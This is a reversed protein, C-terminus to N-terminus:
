MQTFQSYLPRNKKIILDPFQSRRRMESSQPNFNSSFENIFRQGIGSGTGNNSNNSNSVQHQHPFVYQQMNQNLPPVKSNIKVLPSQAASTNNFSQQQMNLTMPTLTQDMKLDYKNEHNMLEDTKLISSSVYDNIDNLRVLVRTQHNDEMFKLLQKYAEEIDKLFEDNRLVEKLQQSFKRKESTYKMTMEAMMAQKKENLRQIIAQFGKEINEVQQDELFTVQQLLKELQSKNLNIISRSKSLQKQLDTINHILLGNIEELQSLAHGNHEYFMCNSCVLSSCTRCFFELEKHKHVMCRTGYDDSEMSQINMPISLNMQPIQQNRVPTQALPPRGMYTNNMVTNKQSFSNNFNPQFLSHNSNFIPQNTSFQLSLAIKLLKNNSVLQDVGDYVKDCQDCKIQQKPQQQQLTQQQNQRQTETSGQALLLSNYILTSNICSLCYTIGCCPLLKPFNENDNFRQQCKDCNVLSEM